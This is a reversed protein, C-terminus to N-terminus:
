AAAEYHPPGDIPLEVRAELGGGDRSALRVQGGHMRAVRDVIALGLGAGQTDSRADELRTFPQMVRDVEQEPIGPGRDLVSLVAIGGDKHTEIDVPGTGYRLANDVLNTIMRQVALPKLRLPPLSELHTRVPEGRKEYREVLSAIIANLDAVPDVTEQAGDRAFDLFQSVIADMDQIDEEMGEFVAPPLGTRSMELALRLRSLPTRLDHSVGALLVARNVEQAKLAASMRNFAQSLTRIESPGREPLPPPSKGAAIEAAADTLARLPRNVRLMLALGGVVALALGVFSWGVWAYASRLGFADPPFVVWYSQDKVRIKVWFSRDSDELVALAQTTDGSRRKLQQSVAALLPSEPTPPEDVEWPTAPLLRIRQMSPLKESFKRRTAAPMTELAIGVTNLVSAINSALQESQSRMSTLRYFGIWAVQSVIIVATILLVSRALLSRPMLTM